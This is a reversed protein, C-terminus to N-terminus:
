VSECVRERCSARGIKRARREDKQEAGLRAALAQVQNARVAQHQDVAVPVRTHVLLRHRADHTASTCMIGPRASGVRRLMAVSLLLAAVDVAQQESAGHVLLDVLALDALDAQAVRQHHTDCLRM